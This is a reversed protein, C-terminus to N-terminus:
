EQQIAVITNVTSTINWFRLVFKRKITAIHPKAIVNPKPHHQIEVFKMMIESSLLLSITIDAEGFDHKLRYKALIWM